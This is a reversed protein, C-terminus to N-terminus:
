NKTLRACKAISAKVWVLVPLPQLWYRLWRLAQRDALKAGVMVNCAVEDNSMTCEPPRRISREEGGWPGVDASMHPMRARCPDLAATEGSGIIERSKKFFRYSDQSQMERGFDHFDIRPGNM